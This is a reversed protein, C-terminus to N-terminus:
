CGAGRHFVGSYSDRLVGYRSVQLHRSDERGESNWYRMRDGVESRPLILPGTLAFSRSYDEQLEATSM